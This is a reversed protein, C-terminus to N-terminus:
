LGTFSIWKVEIGGEDVMICDNIWKHIKKKIRDEVQQSGGQCGSPWLEKGDDFITVKETIEEEYADRHVVILQLNEIINICLCFGEGLQCNNADHSERVKMFM